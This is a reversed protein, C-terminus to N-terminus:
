QNRATPAANNSSPQPSVGVLEALKAELNAARMLSSGILFVRAFSSLREIDARTEIGSASVTLASPPVHPALHETTALDVAFTTLNRNNILIVQPHLAAAAELETETQVEVVPVMGLAEITAHLEQLQQPALIKVILLVAEAGSIRAEFCQHRDIIFDKCLTPVVSRASVDHLLSLSGGFFKEDTLVSIAAAYKNYSQLVEDLSLNEKLVGASPSKPKIETILRPVNLNGSRLSQLFQGEARTASKELDATSRLQKRSAVEHKKNEVIEDLRSNPM